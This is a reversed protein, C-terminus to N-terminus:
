GGKHMLSALISQVQKFHEVNIFDSESVGSLISLRIARIAKSTEPHDTAYAALAADFEIIKNSDIAALKAHAMLAVAPNEAVETLLQWASANDAALAFALYATADVEGEAALVPKNKTMKYMYFAAEGSGTAVAHFLLTEREDENLIPNLSLEYLAASNGAEAAKTLCEGAKTKDQAKYIKYLAYYTEGVNVESLNKLLHAIMCDTSSAERLTPMMQLESLIKEFASAEAIGAKKMSQAAHAIGDQLLQMDHSDLKSASSIEFSAAKFYGHPFEHLYDVGQRYGAHDAMQNFSFAHEEAGKKDCLIALRKFIYPSPNVTKTLNKYCMFSCNEWHPAPLTEYYAPLLYALTHQKETGSFAMALCAGRLGDFAGGKMECCEAMNMLFNCRLDRCNKRKAMDSAAVDLWKLMEDADNGNAKCFRSAYGLAGEASGSEAAAELHPMPDLGIQMALNAVCMHAVPDTAYYPEINTQLWHLWKLREQPLAQLMRQRCYLMLISSPSFSSELTSERACRDALDIIDAEKTESFNALMLSRCILAQLKGNQSHWDASLVEATENTFLNIDAATAEVTTIGYMSLILISVVNKLLSFKM